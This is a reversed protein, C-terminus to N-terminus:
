KLVAKQKYELHVGPIEKGALLMTKVDNTSLQPAQPTYLDRYGNEDLWKAAASVDTVVTSPRPKPFKLSAIGCDMPEGKSVFVLFNLIREAKKDLASKKKELRDKEAKIAAASAIADFYSKACSELKEARLVDLEELRAYIEEAEAIEGTEPDPELQGLLAEIETSIEYIKM